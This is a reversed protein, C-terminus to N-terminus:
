KKAFYLLLGVTVIFVLFVKAPDSVSDILVQIDM